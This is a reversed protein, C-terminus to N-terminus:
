HGSPRLARVADVVEACLRRFAEAPPEAALWFVVTAPDDPAAFKVFTRFGGTGGAHYVYPRPSDLRIQFGRGYPARSGGALMSPKWAEMRETETLLTGNSVARAFRYLDVATTKLDDDGYTVGTGPRAGQPVNWSGCVATSRLGAPELVTKALLRDYRDGAAAELALAL